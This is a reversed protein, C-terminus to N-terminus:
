GNPFPEPDPTYSSTKRVAGRTIRLEDIKGTLDFSSNNSAVNVSSGLWIRNSALNSTFSTSGLLVGDVLLYAVGSERTLEFRHITGATIAGAFPGLKYAGNVWLYINGSDSEIMIEEHNGLSPRMDFLSCNLGANVQVAFEISFDGTGFVFEADTCSVRSRSSTRTFQVAQDFLGTAFTTNQAEWTKGTQDTYDGDFHLLAVVNAWLPDIGTPEAPLSRLFGFKGSRM